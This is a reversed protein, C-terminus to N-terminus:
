RRNPFNKYLRTTVARGVDLSDEDFRGVREAIYVFEKTLEKHIIKRYM